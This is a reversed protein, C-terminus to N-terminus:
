PNAEILIRGDSLVVVECECYTFTVRGTDRMRGGWSNAFLEDLADANVTEFLPPMENTKTNTVAATATVVGETVTENPDIDYVFDADNELEAVDMAFAIARRGQFAPNNKFGM